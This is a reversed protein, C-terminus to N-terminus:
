IALYMGLHAASSAYVPKVVGVIAPFAPTLPLTASLRAHVNHQIWKTSPLQSGDLAVLAAAFM